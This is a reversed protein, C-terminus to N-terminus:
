LRKFVLNSLYTIANNEILLTELKWISNITLNRIGVKKISEKIIIDLKSLNNNNLNLYKLPYIYDGFYLQKLQNSSLDLIQINKINTANFNILKNSSLNLKNIQNLNIKNFSDNLKNWYFSINKLYELQNFANSHIYKLRNFQFSITEISIMKTFLYRKIKNIKNLDLNILKCQPLNDLNGEYLETLHNNQLYLYLVNNLGYFTNMEIYFIQNFSLDLIQLKELKYFQKEKLILLKNNSLNLEILYYFLSSYIEKNLNINSLLDDTIENSSLDLSKISEIKSNNFLNILLDISNLGKLKLNNIKTIEQDILRYEEKNTSICELNYTNNNYECYNSLSPKALNFILVLYQFIKSINM